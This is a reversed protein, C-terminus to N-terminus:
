VAQMVPAYGKIVAAKSYKATEKDGSDFANWVAYASVNLASGLHILLRALMENNTWRKAVDAVAALGCFGGILKKYQEQGYVGFVVDGIIGGINRILGMVKAFKTDRENRGFLLMPISGLLILPCNIMYSFYERSLRGEKFDKFVTKAEELVLKTNGWMTKNAETAYDKYEKNMASKFKIREELMNYPCNFGTSAGYVTDINADGVLPLLAPPILKVLAQILRGKRLSDIFGLGYSCFPAFYKTCMLAAKDAQKSFWVMVPGKQVVDFSTVSAVLHLFANVVSVFMNARSSEALLKDFWTQQNENSKEDLKIEIKPLQSIEAISSREDIQVPSQKVVDSDLGFRPMATMPQIVPELELTM